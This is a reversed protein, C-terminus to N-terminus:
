ARRRLTSLEDDDLLDALSEALPTQELARSLAALDDLLPNPLRQGAWGWLVTRLKDDTHFTLGHDIGRVLHRQRLLHGGKRDANATVIDFVAVRQLDPDDAHVLAVPSGDYSEADLVHLWGPPVREPAVVDVLGSGDAGGVM